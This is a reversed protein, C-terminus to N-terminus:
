VVGIVTTNGDRSEELRRMEHKKECMKKPKAAGREIISPVRAWFPHKERDPGALHVLMQCVEEGRGVQSVPLVVGTVPAILQYPGKLFSM